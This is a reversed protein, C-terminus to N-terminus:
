QTALDDTLTAVDRVLILKAVVNELQRLRIKEFESLTERTGQVDDTDIQVPLRRDGCADRLYETGDASPDFTQELCSAYQWRSELDNAWEILDVSISRNDSTQPAKYVVNTIPHTFTRIETADDFTQEDDEQRIVKLYQRFDVSQDQWSSNVLMAGALTQMQQDFSFDTRVRPANDAIQTTARDDDFQALDIVKPPIYTGSEGDQGDVYRGAFGTSNGMIMDGLWDLMEDKFLSYFTINSARTDTLFSNNIWNGSVNFFSQSAILKDVFTGVRRVRYNYEDTLEYDYYQGSGRPIDVQSECNGRNDHASAPFYTNDLDYYWNEDLAPFNQGSYECYRGPEPMAMVEAYFNLASISAARLDESYDGLDYGLWEYISFYRFPREARYLTEQVDLAYESILRSGYPFSRGIDEGKYRWFPQFFRYKDFAHSVVEDNNGGHDFTACGLTYDAKYDSCFNYPITTPVYPEPDTPKAGPSDEPWWKEALRTNKQIGRKRRQIAESVPIWKRRDLLFEVGREFQQDDPTDPSTIAEGYLEPLRSYDAILKDTSMRNPKDFDEWVEIHDAYVFNIAAKDYKGLGAFRGTLDATYDMISAQQFEEENLYRVEEDGAIQSALEGQLGYVSQAQEPAEGDEPKVVEPNTRAEQQIQWYEDHWNLADRSASFNHRLGLTHGVEHLQTGIFANEEIYRVIEERGKGKFFDAAGRYTALGEVARQLNRASFMNREAMWQDAQKQARYLSKPTVLDLYAQHKDSEAVEESGFRERALSDVLKQMQGNKMLENKVKPHEFFETFRTDSKKAEHITRSVENFERQFAEPGLKNLKDPLEDYDPLEDSYSRSSTSREARRDLEKEFEEPLEGPRLGQERRQEVDELYEEIHTGFRVQQNSLDGNMYQLLDAGYQATSRLPTGAFNADASIIEGTEPDASSPGYGSWSGTYENVWNFFSYRLDGRRQYHFRADEDSRPATAWELNTCLQLRTDIPISWLQDVLSDGDAEATAEDFLAAVERRDANHNQGYEDKWDALPGPLCNNKRIYFMKGERYAERDGETLTTEELLEPNESLTEGVDTLRGTVEDIGGGYEYGRSRAKLRVAQKLSRDWQREVEKAAPIMDRPYQANLHYVIPKPETQGDVEEWIDWRQAFYKRSADKNPRDKDYEVRRTRFYGFRSFYDFTAPKCQETTDGHERRMFEATTENCEVEMSYGQSRDYVQNTMLPEGDQELPERDNLVTPEFDGEMEDTIRQFSNRVSLKGANCYQISDIGLSAECAMLDPEFAYRVTVDIYDDGVRARNPHVHDSEQPRDYAVSATNGLQETFNGRGDVLNASWDVRMHKREYWPRDNSDEVIVNSPEGTSSNYERQVDFHSEIEFVAVAGVRRDEESNQEDNLGEQLSTTSYAYLFEETIEWRIRKLSSEYATNVPGSGQYDTDIVTQTFYWEDDGEFIEKEIKDPQTRNIDGVDQACGAGLGVMVAIVLMELATTRASQRM